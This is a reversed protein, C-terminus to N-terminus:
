FRSRSYKKTHNPNIQDFDEGLIAVYPINRYTLFQLFKHYTFLYPSEVKTIKLKTLDLKRGPKVKPFNKEQCFYSNKFLFVKKRFDEPKDDVFIIVKENNDDVLTYRDTYKVSLKTLKDQDITQLNPVINKLIAQKQKAQNLNM